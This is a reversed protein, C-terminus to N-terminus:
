SSLLYSRYSMVWERSRALKFMYYLYYYYLITFSGPLRIKKLSAYVDVEKLDIVTETSHLRIEIPLMQGQFSKFGHGGAVRGGPIGVAHRFIFPNFDKDKIVRIAIAEKCM